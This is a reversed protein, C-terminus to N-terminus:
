ALQHLWTRYTGPSPSLAFTTGNGSRLGILENGSPLGIQENGSSDSRGDGAFTAVPKHDDLAFRWANMAGGSTASQSVLVGQSLAVILKNRRRLTLASTRAGFPSESVFVAASFSLMREWLARNEPPFPRDLGGALVGITRGGADLAAQHGVTDAGLAFGSVITFGASSATRAFGDHLSRYPERIGRSGVCAVASAGDLADLSGRLYLIPVPYNSRMLLDPYESSSYLLINGSFKRADAIQKEANRRADSWARDDIAALQARFAPIRSGGITLADPNRIVDEPTRGSRYLERAKVPGFHTLRVFVLSAALADPDLTDILSM